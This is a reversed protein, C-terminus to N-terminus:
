KKVPWSRTTAKSYSKAGELANYFGSKARARKPRSGEDIRASATSVM